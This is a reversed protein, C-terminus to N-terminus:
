QLEVLSNRNSRIIFDQTKTGMQPMKPDVPFIIKYRGPQLMLTQAAINGNLNMTYFVEFMEGHEYQLQVKGIPETNSIQLTGPEPIQLEYLAGFSMDISFKSAPLTSIEVYYTGPEYTLKDVCKQLVTAGAAFRRNVIANYEVPRNRNGV